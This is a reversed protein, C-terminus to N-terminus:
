RSIPPVHGGAKLMSGLHRRALALDADTVDPMDRAREGRMDNGEEVIALAAAMRGMVCFFRVPNWGKAQVWAAAQPSYLFDAKNNRLIPHAEENGAKAWARFQPLIELFNLLEKDTVPPQKDYVNPLSPKTEKKAAQAAPSPKTEKKAAQAACAAEPGWGPCAPALVLALLPLAACMRRALWVAHRLSLLTKM